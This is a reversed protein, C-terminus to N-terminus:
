LKKKYSDCGRASRAAYRARAGVIVSLSRCHGVIVSLSRCPGLFFDLIVKECSIIIQILNVIQLIILIKVLSYISFIYM